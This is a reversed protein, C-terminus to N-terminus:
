FTLSLPQLSHSPVVQHWSPSFSSAARPYFLHVCASPSLLVLLVCAGTATLHLSSQKRCDWRFGWLWIHTFNIRVHTLTSDRQSNEGGFHTFTCYTCYAHRWDETWVKIGTLRSTGSKKVRPSKQLSTGSWICCSRVGRWDCTDRGQWWKIVGVYGHLSPPPLLLSTPADWQTFLMDVDEATCNNHLASHATIGGHQWGTFLCGPLTHTYSCASANTQTWSCDEPECFCWKILSLSQLSCIGGGRGKEGRRGREGAGESDRMIVRGEGKEKSAWEQAATPPPKEM